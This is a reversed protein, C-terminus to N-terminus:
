MLVAGISSSSRCRPQQWYELLFFCKVGRVDEIKDSTNFEGGEDCTLFYVITANLDDVVSEIERLKVELSRWAMGLRVSSLIQLELARIHCHRMWNWANAVHIHLGRKHSYEPARMDRLARQLWRPASVLTQDRKSREFTFMRSLCSAIRKVRDKLEQARALLDNLAITEKSVGMPHGANAIKLFHAAARSTDSVATFIMFQAGEAALKALESFDAPEHCYRLASVLQSHSTEPVPAVHDVQRQRM